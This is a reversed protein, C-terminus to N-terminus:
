LCLKKGIFETTAEEITKTIFEETPKEKTEVVTEDINEEMTEDSSDDYHATACHVLDIHQYTEGLTTLDKKCLKCKYLHTKNSEEKVLVYPDLCEICVAENNDKSRSCLYCENDRTEKRKKSPKSSSDFKRKRSTNSSKHLRQFLANNAVSLFKVIEKHGNECDNQNEESFGNRILKKIWFIPNELLQSALQNILQCKKLDTSSLNSFINEALHQFGPNNLIKEM